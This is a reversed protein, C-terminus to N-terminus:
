EEFKEAKKVLFTGGHIKYIDVYDGKQIPSLNSIILLRYSLKYPKSNIKFENDYEDPFEIGEPVLLVSGDPQLYENVYSHEKLNAITPIPIRNRFIVKVPKRTIKISNL